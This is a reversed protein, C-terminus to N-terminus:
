IGFDMGKMRNDILPYNDFIKDPYREMDLLRSEIPKWRYTADILEIRTSFDIDNFYILGKLASIRNTNPYKVSFANLMDNLSMESSLFAIDVFDKLRTGNQSVATLKMAAIDATSYLRIGDQVYVPEVFPYNYMILDVKIDNIHGILTADSQRDLRYNYKYTLYTRLEVTDFSQCSFLDLDVSKRHGMYLALATGGVLHFQKLKEDRM